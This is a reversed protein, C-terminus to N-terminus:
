SAMSTATQPLERITVRGLLMFGTIRVTPAPGTVHVPRKDTIGALLKLSHDEVRWGAPLFLDSGGLINVFSADVVVEGDGPGLYLKTGGLINVSAVEQSRSELERQSGSLISVNAGRRLVVYAIAGVAVLPAATALVRSWFPDFLSSNALIHLVVVALVTLGILYNNNKKM